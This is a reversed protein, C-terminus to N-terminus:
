QELFLDLFPPRTGHGMAVLAIIGPQPFTYYFYHSGNTALVGNPAEPMPVAVKIVQHPEPDDPLPHQEICDHILSRVRALEDGRLSDYFRRALGDPPIYVEYIAM